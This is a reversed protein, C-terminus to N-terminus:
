YLKGCCLKYKINSGCLCVANRGIHGASPLVCKSSSGCVTVSSIYVSGGGVGFIIANNNIVVGYRSGNVSVARGNLKHGSPTIVTLGEGERSEIFVGKHKMSIREILIRGPSEARFVLVINGASKRISIKKGVVEVDWNDSSTKWENNEIKLVERGDSDCLYANILLPEGEEIPNSISFIDEGMVNLISEVNVLSIEGIRVAVSDESVDLPGFSYGTKKCTPNNAKRAITSKSLLGRTVRDHCGGCLLVIKDPDHLTAEAFPPDLHEYQYIACGCNVCGFGCRQRVIRKTAADITRSLGHKNVNIM